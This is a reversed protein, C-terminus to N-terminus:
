RNTDSPNARVVSREIKQILEMAGGGEGTMEVSRLDPLVKRLLGFKIEARAKLRPVDSSEATALENDIEVIGDILREGEVRMRLAEQTLQRRKSANTNGAEAPM